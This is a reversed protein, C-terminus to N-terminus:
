ADVVTLMNRRLLEALFSTVDEILQEEAVAYDLALTDAVEQVSRKGDLLSLISRGTENLTFLADEAEDMGSVLPVILLEGEIERIVITDAVQYIEQMPLTNHM